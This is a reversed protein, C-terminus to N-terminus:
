KFQLLTEIMAKKDKATLYVSGDGDQMQMGVLTGSPTRYAWVRYEGQSLHPRVEEGTQPSKEGTPVTVSQTNITRIETIHNYEIKTHVVNKKGLYSETVVQNEEDFQWHFAELDATAPEDRNFPKIAYRLGAKVQDSMYMIVKTAMVEDDKREVSLWASNVLERETVPISSRSAEIPEAFVHASLCVLLGLSLCLRKKM